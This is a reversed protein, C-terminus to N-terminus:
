WTERLTVKFADSREGGDYEDILVQIQEERQSLNYAYIDRLNVLYERLDDWSTDTTLPQHNIYTHREGKYTETKREPTKTADRIPKM